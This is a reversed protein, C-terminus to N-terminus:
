AAVLGDKELEAGQEQDMVEQCRICYSAWPVAALRKVGIAGECRQCIGYHGSEIRRLALKVNSLLRSERDLVRTTLEREVAYQAEDSADASREIAIGERRALAQYVGMRIAELAKKSEALEANTM